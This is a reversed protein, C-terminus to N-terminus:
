ISDSVYIGNQVNRKDSVLMTFEISPNFYNGNEEFRDANTIQINSLKVLRLSNSITEDKYPLTPNVDTYMLRELGFIYKDFKENYVTYNKNAVMFWFDLRFSAERKRTEDATRTIGTTYLQYHIFSESAGIMQLDLETEIQKLKISSGYQGNLVEIKDEIYKQTLALIM